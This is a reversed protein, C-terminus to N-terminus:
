RREGSIFVFYLSAAFVALIVGILVQGIVNSGILAILDKLSTGILMDSVIFVSILCAALLLMINIRGKRYINKLKESNDIYSKLLGRSEAVIAKYNANNRSSIELNRVFTKFFPHEINMMLLSLADTERGSNRASATATVIEERLPSDMDLMRAANELISIIDDSTGAYGDVANIFTLLEDETKSMRANRKRQFIFETGAIFAAETLGVMYWPIKIVVGFIVIAASVAIMTMLAIEPTLFGYRHAMGSYRINEEIRSMRGSSTVEGYMQKIQREIQRRNGTASALRTYVNRMGHELVSNLQLYMFSRYLGVAILIGIALRLIRVVMLMSM